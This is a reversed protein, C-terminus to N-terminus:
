RPVRLPFRGFVADIVRTRFDHIPMTRGCCPCCRSADSIEEIQHQFNYRKLQALTAKSHELNLGLDGYRQGHLNVHVLHQTRKKGAETTIEVIIRVDM